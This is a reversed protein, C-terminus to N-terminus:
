DMGLRKRASALSARASAEARDYESTSGFCFSLTAFLCYLLGQGVWYIGLCGVIIWLWM